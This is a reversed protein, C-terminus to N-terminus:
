ERVVRRERAAHAADTESIIAVRRASARAELIDEVARRISTAVDLLADDRRHWKTVPKGDRPTALLRGIPTEQWDVPRLIV